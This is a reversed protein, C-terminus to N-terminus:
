PMAKCLKSLAERAQFSSLMSISDSSGKESSKQTNIKYGAINNYKSILGQLKRTNDTPKEIYIIM